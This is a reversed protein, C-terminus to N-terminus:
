IIGYIRTMHDHVCEYRELIVLQVIKTKNVKPKLLTVQSYVFLIDM